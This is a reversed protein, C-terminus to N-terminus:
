LKGNKRSTRENKHLEFNNQKLTLRTHKSSYVFSKDKKKNNAEHKKRLNPEQHEM